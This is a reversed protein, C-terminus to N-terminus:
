RPGRAHLEDLIARLEPDRAIREHILKRGRVLRSQAAARSAGTIAGIEDLGYGYVDHLLFTWAKKPEMTDLHKQIRRLAARHMLVSVGVREVSEPVDVEDFAFVRRELKRRRIHKYAVRAVVVSAWADAPCDGRFRDVSLVLDMLARQALDDYDPERAGVLRSLVRDVVPRFRDHFAAASATSGSRVLRILEEDSLKPAEPERAGGAILRLTRPSTKPAM